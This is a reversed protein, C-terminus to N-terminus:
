TGNGRGPKPLYRDRLAQKTDVVESAAHAAAAPAEGVQGRAATARLKRYAAHLDDHEREIVKLRREFEAVREDWESPIVRKGSSFPWM